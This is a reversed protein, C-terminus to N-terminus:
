NGNTGHCDKCGSIGNQEVLSKASDFLPSKLLDVQHINAKVHCYFCETKRFGHPHNQATLTLETTSQLGYDEYERQVGCGICLFLLLFAYGTVKMAAERLSLGSLFFEFSSM